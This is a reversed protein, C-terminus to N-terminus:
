ARVARSPLLVHRILLALIEFPLKRCLFEHLAAVAALKDESVPLAILHVLKAALGCACHHQDAIAFGSHDGALRRGRCM